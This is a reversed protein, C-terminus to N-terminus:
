GRASILTDLGDLIRDLGFRLADGREGRLDGFAAAAHPFRAGHAALVGALLPGLEAEAGTQKATASSGATTQQVLNRVHGALLAVTDLQEAGTLGTDALTALAAETWGLENPGFVRAGMTLETSWPHAHYRDRLEIAWTRLGTRWPPEGPPRTAPDLRPPPGLGYDLMLAMLEARGPVYRYLSMKTYGLSEALRQMSLAALGEADVLAIAADLIRDLSLSPKPGRKPRQRTGWLLEVTTPTSM